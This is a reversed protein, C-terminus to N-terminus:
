DSLPFTNLLIRVCREQRGVFTRSEMLKHITVRGSRRVPTSSKKVDEEGRNTEQLSVPSARARSSRAREVSARADRIRALVM